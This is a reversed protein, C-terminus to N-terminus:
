ENGADDEPPLTIGGTSVFGALRMSEAILRRALAGRGLAVHVANDRGLAAGIEAASFLEVLPLDRGLAALKGRGGGAGDVAAVLVAARGERLWASVQEFGAALQGARRALGILDLCRRRLLLEIKDALGEPVNVSAHAAKDFGGKACAKEVVDRRAQLWIGRGPLRGELDAVIIGHPDLVFRILREKPLVRRTVICRRLPGMPEEVSDGTHEVPATVHAAM